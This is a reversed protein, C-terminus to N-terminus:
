IWIVMDLELQSLLHPLNLDPLTEFKLIPHWCCTHVSRLDFYEFSGNLMKKGAWDGWSAPDRGMVAGILIQYKGGSEHSNLSPPTWPGSDAGCKMNSPDM